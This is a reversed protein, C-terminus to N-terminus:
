IEPVSPRDSGPRTKPASLPAPLSETEAAVSDVPEPLEYRALVQTGLQYAEGRWEIGVVKLERGELVVARPRGPFGFSGTNIITRGRRSWVGPRHTHGIIAFRAEPAHQAVFEDALRPVIQWYWLVKAVAWPRIIMNFMTSRSAERKLEHLHKWEEHSAHQALQLRAELTERDDDELQELGNRYARRIRGAAPSWPAVAPHLVDGHTVFILGRALHLHRIDSIYPDHNGSLLTLHVDDTECLDFLQMTEKAAECWHTPHHVEATDGNVIFRDADAWLPRLARASAAAAHPRGLHTDSIIVIRESM